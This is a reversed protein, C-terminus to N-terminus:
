SDNHNKEIESFEKKLIQYNNHNNTMKYIAKKTSGSFAKYIM